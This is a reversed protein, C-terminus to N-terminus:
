RNLAHDRVRPAHRDFSGPDRLDVREHWKDEFRQLL